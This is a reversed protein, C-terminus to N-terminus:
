CARRWAGLALHKRIASIGHAAARDCFADLSLAYEVNLVLRGAGLMGQYRGCERYQFCQENVALDVEDGLARLLGLGNKLAFALGRAHAAQILWRDYRLQDARTIAFGTRHAHGDIWDFEVGDFGKRACRDLRDRMIPRLIDLRRIDLWREDPWGAIRRGKVAAPFRDADPRYPEWSGASVYCLVRRGREHLEEVVGARTTFLDVDFVDADVSTDITGDLQYQWSLGPEPIWREPEGARVRGVLLFAILTGLALAGLVAYRHKVAQGQVRHSGADLTVKPARRYGGAICTM